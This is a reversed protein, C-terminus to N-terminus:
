LLRVSGAAANRPNAFPPDGKKKRSENFQLFAERDMYVEGRVEIFAIDEKEAPIRLPISRITKLNATINEGERGDGRTAGLVFTGKEYSLTVGLGDIKLEVVYEPDRTLDLGRLVRRRFDKLEEVSYTNDLSLMPIRHRVAEFKEAVKGGVRQTPSDPTIWDPHKTELTKLRQMLRDYERDSIEPRNEVYYLHDHRHIERRLRELEKKESDTM